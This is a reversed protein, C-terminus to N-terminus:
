QIIFPDDKITDTVEEYFIPVVIKDERKEYEFNMKISLNQFKDVDTLYMSFYVIKQDKLSMNTTVEKEVKLDISLCDLLENIINSNVVPNQNNSNSPIEIKELINIIKSYNNIKEIKKYRSRDKYKISDEFAYISFDFDSHKVKTTEGDNELEITTSKNENEKQYNITISSTYSNKLNPNSNKKIFLVTLIIAILIMLTALIIIIKHKLIKEKMM